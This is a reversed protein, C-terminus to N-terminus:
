LSKTNEILQLWEKLVAENSYKYISATSNGKCTLYLVKDNYMNNIAETLATFNQDSVLLGNNQHKIIESPGSECNFSVVPVGLALAEVLVMPMGENRSSLILFSSAKIYPYPNTKFGIIKILGELKHQKVLAILGPKDQGEGLIYLPVNNKAPLSTKYALILKDFQKVENKLRGVAIIFPKKLDNNAVESKLLIDSNYFNPIYLLNNFNFLTKTTELIGQSVAVVAKVRSYLKYLVISKPMYDNVRFSHITLITKNAKFVFFHLILEKLVNNKFRFDIYIDANVKAYTKRFVFFKKLTQIFKNQHKIHGLNFLEGKYEYDVKKNLTSIISVQYNKNYFSQSLLSAVKEAGGGTLCDVLLCIHKAKDPKM